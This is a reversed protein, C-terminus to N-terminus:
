EDEKEEKKLKKQLAKEEKIKKKEEAKELQKQLKEKKAEAKKEQQQQKKRMKPSYIEKNKIGLKDELVSEIHSGKFINEEADYIDEAIISDCLFYHRMVNKRIKEEKIKTWKLFKYDIKGGVECESNALILLPKISHKETIFDGVCIGKTTTTFATGKLGADILWYTENLDFLDINEMFEQYSPLLVMEDPYVYDNAM